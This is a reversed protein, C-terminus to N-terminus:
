RSALWQRFHLMSLFLVTFFLFTLLYLDFQLLSIPPHWPVALNSGAIRAAILIGLLVLIKEGWLLWRLNDTQRKNWESVNHVTEKGDSVDDMKDKIKRVVTALYAALAVVLSLLTFQSQEVISSLNNKVTFWKMPLLWLLWVIGAVTVFFLVSCLANRLKPSNKNEETISPLDKVMKWTLIRSKVCLQELAANRAIILATAKELKNVIVALAHVDRLTSETGSLDASRLNHNAQEKTLLLNELAASRRDISEVVREVTAVRDGLSKLTEPERETDM